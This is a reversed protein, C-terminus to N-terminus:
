PKGGLDLIKDRLRLVEKDLQDKKAFIEKAASEAEELAAQAEEIQGEDKSRKAMVLAKQAKFTATTADKFEPSNQFEEVDTYAQRLQAKLDAVKKKRAELDDEGSCGALLMTPVCCVMLFLWAKRM